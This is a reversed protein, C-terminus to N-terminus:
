EQPRKVPSMVKLKKIDLKLSQGRQTWQGMITSDNRIVGKYSGLLMPALIILSDSKVLVSGLPIDKAGQDPSDLTATLSDKENLKINFVLRLKITNVDLSGNWSGVIKSKDINQQGSLVPSLLFIIFLSVIINKM